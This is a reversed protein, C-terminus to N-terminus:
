RREWEYIKDQAERADAADPVLALYRKMEAIAANADGTEGLVLAINFHGEPWWPAIKLAKGFLDSAGAFDKDRIAAEAQVKYKRAEEPLAPKPSAARYRRATTEFDRQEKLSAAQAASQAAAQAADQAALHSKAFAALEANTSLAVAFGGVAAGSAEHWRLNSAPWPITFGGSGQVVGLPAGGSSLFTARIDAFTKMFSASGIKAYVDLVATLDAGAAKAQDPSDVTVVSAFAKELVADISRFFAADDVKEYRGALTGAVKKVYTTSNRTNESRIVALRLMKVDKYQREGSLVSLADVRPPPPPVCGLVALAISALAAIDALRM